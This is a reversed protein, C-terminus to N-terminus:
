GIVCGMQQASDERERCILWPEKDVVGDPIIGSLQQKVKASIHTFNSRLACDDRLM